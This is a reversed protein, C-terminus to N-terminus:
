ATSTLPLTTATPMCDLVLSRDYMRSGDLGSQQLRMKNKGTIQQNVQKIQQTSNLSLKKDIM